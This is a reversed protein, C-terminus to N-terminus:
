KTPKSIVLGCAQMSSLFGRSDSYKTALIETHPPLEFLRESPTLLEFMGAFPETAGYEQLGESLSPPLLGDNKQAYDWLFYGVQNM